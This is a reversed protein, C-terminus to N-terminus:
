GPNGASEVATRMKANIFSFLTMSEAAWAWPTDEGVSRVPICVV